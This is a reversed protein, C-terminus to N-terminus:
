SVVEPLPSRGQVVVKVVHHDQNRWQEICKCVKDRINLSQFLRLVITYSKTCFMCM